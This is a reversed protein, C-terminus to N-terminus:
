RVYDRMLIYFYVMEKDFIEEYIYNVIEIYIECIDIWFIVGLVFVYLREVIYLDNNNEFLKLLGIIKILFIKFLKVLFKIGFDRLKNNIVFFIWM